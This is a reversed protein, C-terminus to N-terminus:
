GIAPQRALGPAPPKDYFPQRSGAQEAKIPVQGQPIMM